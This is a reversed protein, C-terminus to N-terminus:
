HLLNAETSELQLIRGALRFVFSASRFVPVEITREYPDYLDRSCFARAGIFFGVV